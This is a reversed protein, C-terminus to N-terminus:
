FKVLPPFKRFEIFNYINKSYCTANNWSIKILNDM